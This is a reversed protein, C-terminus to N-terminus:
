TAPSLASNPHCLTCFCKVKLIMCMSLPAFINCWACILAQGKTGGQGNPLSDTTHGWMGRSVTPCRISQEQFPKEKSTSTLRQHNNTSRGAPMWFEVSQSIGTKAGGVLLLGTDNSHIEHNYFSYCFALSLRLLVTHIWLFDM